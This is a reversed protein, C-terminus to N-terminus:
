RALSWRRAVAAPPVVLSEFLEEYKLVVQRADFRSVAQGDVRQRGRGAFRDISDALLPATYGPVIECQPIDQLISSLGAVPTAIVPTGCSLSELVVNPFGEFRSSLLFGDAQAYAPYPNHRYGVLRVRDQLRLEQIQRELRARLSGEGLITLRVNRNRVLAMAGIALDFGKQDELRGAAVLNFADPDYAPADDRCSARERVFSFDLPNPIVVGTGEHWDLSKRYDQEMASSQFVLLDTNVLAVKTLAQWFRARDNRELAASFLITPRAVFRTRRPWFQRTVGLTVNFYDITSFVIDPREKWIHRVIKLLAYRLRPVGLDIVPVDLPLEDSFVSDQQNVVALSVDFRERSLNRLLTTTVREAGGPVLAPIFFLVKIRKDSM